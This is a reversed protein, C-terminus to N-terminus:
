QIGHHFFDYDRCYEIFNCNACNASQQGTVSMGCVVNNEFERMARSSKNIMIRGQELVQAVPHRVFIDDNGPIYILIEQQEIDLYTERSLLSSALTIEVQSLTDSDNYSYIIMAGYDHDRWVLIPNIWIHFDGIDLSAPCKIQRWKLSDLKWLKDFLSNATFTNLWCNLRALWETFLIKATNKQGYYIEFINTNKPDDRWQELTCQRWDHHFLELAKRRLVDIAMGYTAYNQGCSFTYRIATSFINRLWNDASNIQKLRYLQRCRDASYLQQGGQSLHYNFLYALHCSNFLRERRLSWSFREPKIHQAIDYM